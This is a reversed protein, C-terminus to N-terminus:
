LTGNDIPGRFIFPWKLFTQVTGKLRNIKLFQGNKSFNWIKIEGGFM